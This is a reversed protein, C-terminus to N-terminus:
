RKGLKKLYKDIENKTEKEDDVIEQLAFDPNLQKIHFSITRNALFNVKNMRIANKYGYKKLSNLLSEQMWSDFGGFSDNATFVIQYNLNVVVDDESIPISDFIDDM